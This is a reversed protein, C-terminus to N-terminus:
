VSAQGPYSVTTTPEHRYMFRVKEKPEARRIVSAYLQPSPIDILHLTEDLSPSYLRLTGFNFVRGWFSQSVTVSEIHETTYKHEEINWIGRQVIIEEPRVIYITNIWRLFILVILATNIAQFILAILAYVTLTPLYRSIQEQLMILPLLVLLSALGTIMHTAIVRVLVIISSTRIPYSYGEARYHEMATRPRDM